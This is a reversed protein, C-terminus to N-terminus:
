PAVRTAPGVIFRLAASKSMGQEILLRIVPISAGRVYLPIGMVAALLVSLVQGTRPRVRGM